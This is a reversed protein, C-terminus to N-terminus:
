ATNRSSTRCPAAWRPWHITLAAGETETAKTAFVGGDTLLYFILEGRQPLPYTTTAETITQCAGAAVVARKASNRISEHAQGGIYGGGNSLYISANGDSLAVITATAGAMGWDMLVGWPEAPNGEAPLNLKARTGTLMQDRLRLYVNPGAGSSSKM